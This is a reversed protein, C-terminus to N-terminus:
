CLPFDVRPGEHHPGSPGAGPDCPSLAPPPAPMSSALGVPCPLGAPCPTGPPGGWQAGRRTGRQGGTEGKRPTPCLAVAVDAGLRPRLHSVVGSPPRWQRPRAGAPGLGRSSRPRAARHRSPGPPRGAADPAPHARPSPALGQDCLSRRDRRALRAKRPWLTRVWARHVWACGLIPWRPGQERTPEAAPSPVPRRCGSWEVQGERCHGELRYGCQRGWAAGWAEEVTWM